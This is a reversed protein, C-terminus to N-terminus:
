KRPTKARPAPEAPPTKAPEERRRSNLVWGGIGLVILLILAAGAILWPRGSRLKQQQNPRRPEPRPEDRFAFPSVAESTSSSDGPDASPYTAQSESPLTEATPLAPAVRAARRVASHGAPYHTFPELVAAVEAASGYRDAPKKALLRAVVRALDDSVDRRDAQLPRPPDVQHKLLKEIATGDPFPPHGTLLLYFTCGVAYLDARHDVTSSNRAQEPAMYDPTGVVTGARTLELGGEDEELGGRVLGMDLLKVAAPLTAQPVHREGSVVVNSPKVDRHVFGLAHAHHLGLCTQRLYECAEPVPLIGHERVLRSLDIGDVFEMALWTRGDAEGADEVGVINPHRLAAASKVERDYRGRVVPNDLLKPRIIKLAVERGVRVQRARYVKGMGGEGLRDTIVYDGVVLEAAKGNLVKRLQYVTLRGSAVLHNLCAATDDGFRAVDRLVDRLQDPPFLRSARLAAALETTTRHPM